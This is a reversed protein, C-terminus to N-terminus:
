RGPRDEATLAEEMLFTEEGMFLRVPEKHQDTQMKGMPM